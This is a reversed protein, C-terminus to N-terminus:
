GCSWNRCCTTPSMRPLTLRLLLAYLQRGGAELLSELRSWPDSLPEGTEVNTKNGIMFVILSAKRVWRIRSQCTANQRPVM